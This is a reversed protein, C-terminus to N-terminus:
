LFVALLPRMGFLRPIVVPLSGVVAENGAPMPGVHPKNHHISISDAEICAPRCKAQFDLSQLGRNIAVHMGGRKQCNARSIEVLESYSLM